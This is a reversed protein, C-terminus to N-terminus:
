AYPEARKFGALGSIINGPIAETADNYKTAIANYTQSTAAIAQDTARLEDVLPEVETSAVPQPTALTLLPRLAITLEGERRAADAPGKAARARTLTAMVADLAASDVHATGRLHDVIAAVADHRRKVQADVQRWAQTVLKRMALLRNYGVACWAGLAALIAVTVLVSM